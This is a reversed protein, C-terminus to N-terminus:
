VTVTYLAHCVLSEGLYIQLILAITVGTAFIISAAYVFIPTNQSSSDKNTDKIDYLDYLDSSGSVLQKLPIEKPLHSLDTAPAIFCKLSLEAFSHYIQM